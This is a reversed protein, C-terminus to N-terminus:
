WADVDPLPIHPQQYSQRSVIKQLQREVILQALARAQQHQQTKLAHAIKQEQVDLNYMMQLLYNPQTNMVMQVAGVLAEFYDTKRLQEANYQQTVAQLINPLQHM